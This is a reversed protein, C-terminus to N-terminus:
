FKGKGNSHSSLKLEEDPVYLVWGIDIFSPNAVLIQNM